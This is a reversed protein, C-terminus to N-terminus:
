TVNAGELCLKVVLELDIDTLHDETGKHIVHQWLRSLQLYFSMNWQHPLGIQLNMQTSLMVPYLQKMIAQFLVIGYVIQTTCRGDYIKATVPSKM